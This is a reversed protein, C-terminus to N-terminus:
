CARPLVVPVEVCVGDVCERTGCCIEVGGVVGVADAIETIFLDGERICGECCVSEVREVAVGCAGDVCVGDVCEGTGCCIEVGGVVGVADAAETIFVDGEGICGECCVSEVREVAVGCAGDVCVGDVSERTVCCIEVGGVVGVADAIETIFVDGESIVRMLVDSLLVVPVM